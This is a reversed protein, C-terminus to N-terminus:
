AAAPRDWDALCLVDDALDDDGLGWHVANLIHGHPDDLIRNLRQRYVDPGPFEIGRVLRRGDRDTVRHQFSHPHTLKYLAAEDLIAERLGLRHAAFSLYGDCYLVYATTDEYYGRLTHMAERSLLQFDGCANTFLHPLDLMTHPGPRYQQVTHRRCFDEVATLDAPDLTLPHPSVDDRVCRYLCGPDLDQAALRAFLAPNWIVDSCKNVVFRGRARRLAANVAVVGNFPFTEAHRYFRHLTPPVTVLRVTVNESRAPLRLVERLPPRDAPPNWDTLVIEAPLGYRGCGAMFAELCWQRKAAMNGSYDDNRTAIAISLYPRM